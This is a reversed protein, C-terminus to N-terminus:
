SQDRSNTNTNTNTRRKLTSPLNDNVACFAPVMVDDLEHTNAGACIAEADERTYLGAASARTTYGKNNPAWWAGHEISWIRYMEPDSM